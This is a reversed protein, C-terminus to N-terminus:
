ISNKLHFKDAMLRGTCPYSILGYSKTDNKFNFEYNKSDIQITIPMKISTNILNKGKWFDEYVTKLEVIM